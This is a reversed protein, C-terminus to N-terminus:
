TQYAATTRRKTGHHPKQPKNADQQKKVKEYKQDVLALIGGLIGQINLTFAGLRAGEGEKEPYKYATVNMHGSVPTGIVSVRRYTKGDGGQLSFDRTVSVGDHLPHPRYANKERLNRWLPDEIEEAPLDYETNNGIGNIVHTFRRAYAPGIANGTNDNPRMAVEFGGHVTEMGDIRATVIELRGDEVAQRIKGALGPTTGVRMVNVTTEHKLLFDSTQEPFRKFIEPVFREWYGIIEESTYGEKMRMRMEGMANKVVGEFGMKKDKKMMRMFRPMERTFPLEEQPRPEGRLHGKLPVGKDDYVPHMLGRRSMMVIKGKYGGDLLRIASDIASLGTGIVLASARDHNQTSNLVRDYYGNAAESYPYNLYRPSAAVNFAFSPRTAHKLGTALIMHAAELESGDQMTMTVGNKHENFDVVESYRTDVKVKGGAKEFALDILHDLYRGYLKRQPNAFNRVADPEEQALQEIYQDFTPFGEPQEGVAFPTIRKSTLNLNYDFQPTNGYAIGGHMQQPFREIHTIRLPNDETLRPDDAAKLLWHLLTTTGAFGGGVIALPKTEEGPLQYIPM